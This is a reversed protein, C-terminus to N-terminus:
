PTSIDMIAIGRPAPDKPRRASFALQKGDPSWVPHSADLDNPTVQRLGTGDPKVIFTGALQQSNSRTSTFALWQGDPSWSPNRGQRPPSELSRFEGAPGVLWIANTMRTYTQGVGKQGAIALWKGDPSVSAMGALIQERHTVMEAAHSRLDIRKIAQEGVDRVVLHDGDPYWTPYFVVETLGTAALPRAHTGDPNILWVTSFGDGSTGTFAIQNNQRSWDARTASVPLPVATLRHATGGSAPVMFLEWHQGDDTTRSFLVTKGDPSFCPWEDTANPDSTLFRVKSEPSGALPSSTGAFIAACLVVSFCLLKRVRLRSEMTTGEDMDAADLADQAQLGYWSYTDGCGNASLM